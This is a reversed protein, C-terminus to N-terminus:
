LPGCPGKKINLIFPVIRINNGAIVQLVRLCHSACARHASFFYASRVPPRHQTKPPCILGVNGPLHVVVDPEAKTLRAPSYQTKIEGLLNKSGTAVTGVANLHSLLFFIENEDFTFQATKVPSNPVCFAFRTYNHWNHNHCKVGFHKKQSSVIIAM